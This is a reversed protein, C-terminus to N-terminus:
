QQKYSSLPVGVVIELQMYYNKLDNLCQAYDAQAKTYIETVRILEGVEVRLM